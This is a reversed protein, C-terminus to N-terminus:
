LYFSSVHTLGRKFKGFREGNHSLSVGNSIGRAGVVQTHGAVLSPAFLLL